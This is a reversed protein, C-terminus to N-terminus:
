VLLVGHIEKQQYRWRKFLQFVRKANPGDFQGARDGLETRLRPLGERAAVDKIRSWKLFPTGPDVSSWIPCSRLLDDDMWDVAECIVREVLRTVMRFDAEAECVVLFRCPM